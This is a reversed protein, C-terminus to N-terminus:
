QDFDYFACFTFNHLLDCGQLQPTETQGNILAISNSSNRGNLPRKLELRMVSKVELVCPQEYLGECLCAHVSVCM